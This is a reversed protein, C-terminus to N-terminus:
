APEEERLVERVPRRVAPPPAPQGARRPGVRILVQPAEYTGLLGAVRHRLAPVEIPQNLFSYSLGAATLAILAREMAQGAAMWDRPADGPTALVALAPSGDAFALDKAAQGEGMDFTRIALAGAFSLLDPMGFAAGSMGDRSAARRSRMWAALERRFAPDAMQARDGEAVLMALAHKLEPEVVWHLAAGGEQTAASSAARM